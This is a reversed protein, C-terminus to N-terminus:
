QFKNAIFVTNRESLTKDEMTLDAQTNNLHFTTQHDQKSGKM